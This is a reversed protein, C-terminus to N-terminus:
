ITVYSILSPRKRGDSDHIYQIVSYKRNRENQVRRFYISQILFLYLCCLQILWALLVSQQIKLVSNSNRTSISLTEGIQGDSSADRVMADERAETTVNSITETEAYFKENNRVNNANLFSSGPMIGFFVLCFCILSVILKKQKM